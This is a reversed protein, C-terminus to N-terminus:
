KKPVVYPIYSIPIVVFLSPYPFCFFELEERAKLLFKTVRPRRTRASSRRNTPTTKKTM